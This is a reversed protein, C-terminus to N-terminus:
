GGGAQAPLTDSMRTEWTRIANGLLLWLEARPIAQGNRVRQISRRDRGTQGVLWRLPILKLRERLENVSLQRAM